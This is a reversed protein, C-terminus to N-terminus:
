FNEELTVFEWFNEFTKQKIQKEREIEENMSSIQRLIKDKEVTKAKKEEYLTDMKKM